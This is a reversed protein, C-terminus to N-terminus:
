FATTEVRVTFGFDGERGNGDHLSFVYNILWFHSLRQRLIYNQETFVSARFDYRLQVRASYIENLRRTFDATYQEIVRAKVPDELYDTGLRFSWVDADQLTLGTNFETTKGSQVVTRNYFDYRLWHVPTLAFFTHLDTHNRLVGQSRAADASLHEDAALSLQALNRSGYVKDRTQLVHDYGLRLTDTAPLQDINRQDAIGLPRLYTNFVDDDIVPIHARGNDAAPSYRYSLRPTAIHRLGNIGWRQNQYDWTASHEFAKADFGIEGISRTYTSDASGPATDAYHTVRVGAVPTLSFWERPSFPRTVGYYLDARKSTVTPVGLVPNEKLVAVGANLRHYIGGGIEVPLCDVRIEPLREQVVSFDNTRVRTFASVIYNEGAYATELWNDPAQVKNFDDRRFDRTVESDTWYNVRGDLTLGPSFLQHHEWDVFGRSSDIPRAVIDLGTNGQDEIYGTRLSGQAGIGDAGVSKYKVVPGFLVGRKTLLGLEAGLATSSSVPATVTLDLFTGLKGGFGAQAELGSLTPDSPSQVFTPLPFVNVPGIGLRNKQLRVTDPQNDPHSYTMLGSRVVPNLPEPEGFSVTAKVIDLKKPNGEAGAGEALVEQQGVRFRGVTFTRTDLHYRVVEAVLRQDARTIVVNGRAIALHDSARYTIEDATLVLGGQTLRADGTLVSGEPTIKTSDATLAFQSGEAARLSSIAVLLAVTLPAIRRIM